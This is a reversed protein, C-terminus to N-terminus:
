NITTVSTGDIFVEYETADKVPSWTAIAEEIKLDTVTPTSEFITCTIINSYNSAIDGNKAIVVFQYDGTTTYSDLTYSTDNITTVLNGTEGVVEYLEYSTAGWPASWSLVKGSVRLTPATLGVAVENSYDSDLYGENDSTAVVAIVSGVGFNIDEITSIDYSTDSTTILPTYVGNAINLCIVYSTANTISSWSLSTGNLAIVPTELQTVTYTVTASYGSSKRYDAKAIVVYTYTGATSPTTVTYSVDTTTGISTYVEDAVEFIEYSAAGKVTEWTIVNVSMTPVPIDLVVSIINSEGGVYGDAVSKVLINDGFSSMDIPLTYSPSTVTAVLTRISNSDVSYVKYETANAVNQWTVVGNSISIVPPKLYVREKTVYVNVLEGAEGSTSAIGVNCIASTTPQVYVGSEATGKECVIIDTGDVLLTKFIGLGCFVTASSSSNVVISHSSTKDEAYMVPTGAIITNDKIEIVQAVSNTGNDYAIIVKNNSLLQAAFNSVSTETISFKESVIKPTESIDMFFISNLNNVVLVTTDNIKVLVGGGSISSKTSYTTRNLKSNEADFNYVEIYGTYASLFVNDRIQIPRISHKDGKLNWTAITTITLDDNIKCVSAYNTGTVYANHNPEYIYFFMNDSIRCYGFNSYASGSTYFIKYETIELDYFRLVCHYYYSSGSYNACTMIALNSSLVTTHTACSSADSFSNDFFKPTGVEIEGTDNFKVIIGYHAKFGQVFYCILVRNSDIKAAEVNSVPGTYFENPNTKRIFEVFDGANVTEGANVKYQKIIGNINLDGVGGTQISDIENALTSILIQETKGTKSRVSNAINQLTEQQILIETNNM